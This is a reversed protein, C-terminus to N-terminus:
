YCSQQRCPNCLWKQNKGVDPVGSVAPTIYGRRGYTALITPATNVNVGLELSFGKAMEDSGRCQVSIWIEQRLGATSKDAM